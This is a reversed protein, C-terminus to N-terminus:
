CDGVRELSEETTKQKLAKIVKRKFYSDFSRNHDKTYTLNETLDTHFQILYM